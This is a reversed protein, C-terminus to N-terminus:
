LSLLFIIIWLLSLIIHTSIPEVSFIMCIIQLCIYLGNIIDIVYRAILTNEYGGLEVILINYYFQIPGTEGYVVCAINITYQAMMKNTYGIDVANYDDSVIPGVNNINRVVHTINNTMVPSSYIATSNSYPEGFICANKYIPLRLMFLIFIIYVMM